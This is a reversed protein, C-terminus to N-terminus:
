KKHAAGTNSKLHGAGTTSQLHGAGTTSPLHGAGTTSPLYRARLCNQLYDSWTIIVHRYMTLIHHLCIWLEPVVQLYELVVIPSLIDVKIIVMSTIRFSIQRWVQYALLDTARTESDQWQAPIKPVRSDIFQQPEHFEFPIFNAMM